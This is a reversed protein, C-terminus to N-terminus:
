TGQFVNSRQRQRSPLQKQFSINRKGEKSIIEAIMLTEEKLAEIVGIILVM